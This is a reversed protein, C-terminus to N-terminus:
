LFYSSGELFFCLASHSSLVNSLSASLHLRYLLFECVLSFDLTLKNVNIGITHGFTVFNRWALRYIKKTGESIANWAFEELATKSRAGELVGASPTTVGGGLDAVLEVVSSSFTMEGLPSSSSLGSALGLVPASPVLKEWAPKTKGPTSTSSWPSSAAALLGVQSFVGLCVVKVTVAASKAVNTRTSSADAPFADASSFSAAALM